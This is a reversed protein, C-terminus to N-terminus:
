CHQIHHGKEGLRYIEEAQDRTVLRLIVTQWQRVYRRESTQAADCRWTAATTNSRGGILVVWTETALSQRRWDLHHLGDGNSGIILVMATGKVM